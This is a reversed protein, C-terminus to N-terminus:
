AKYYAYYPEKSIPGQVYGIYGVGAVVPVLYDKVRGHRIANMSAETIYGTNLFQVRFIREKSSYDDIEDIITFQGFNNSNYTEGIYSKM